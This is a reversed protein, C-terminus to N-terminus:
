FCIEKKQIHTNYVKNEVLVQVFNLFMCPQPDYNPPPLIYTPPPPTQQSPDPSQVPGLKSESM